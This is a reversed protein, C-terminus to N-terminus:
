MGPTGPPLCELLVAHDAATIELADMGHPVVIRDFNEKTAAPASAAWGSLLWLLPGSVFRQKLSFVKM